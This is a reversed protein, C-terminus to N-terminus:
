TPPHTSMTVLSGSRPVNRVSGLRWCHMCKNGCRLFISMVSVKLNASRSVTSASSCSLSLLPIVSSTGTPCKMSMRQQSHFQAFTDCSRLSENSSPRSPRATRCGGTVFACEAGENCTLLNHKAKRMAAQRTQLTEFRPVDSCSLSKRQASIQLEPLSEIGAADSCGSRTNRQTTADLWPGLNIDQCLSGDLQAGSVAPTSTPLCEAAQAEDTNSGNVVPAAPPWYFGPKKPSEAPSTAAADTWDSLPVLANQQEGLSCVSNSRGIASLPGTAPAQASHSTSTNTTNLVERMM